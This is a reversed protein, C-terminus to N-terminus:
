FSEDTQVFTEVVKKMRGGDYTILSSYENLLGQFSSFLSLIEQAAPMDETNSGTPAKVESFKANSTQFASIQILNIIDSPLQILNPFSAM